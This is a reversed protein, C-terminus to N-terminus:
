QHASPDVKKAASTRKQAIRALEEPVLTKVGFVGRYDGLAASASAFQPEFKSQDPLASETTGSCRSLV